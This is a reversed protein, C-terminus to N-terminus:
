KNLFLKRNKLVDTLVVELPQRLGGYERTKLRDIMETARVHGAEQLEDLLLV